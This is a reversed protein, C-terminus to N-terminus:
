ALKKDKLLTKLFENRKGGILSIWEEYYQPCKEKMEKDTNLFYSPSSTRALVFQRWDPYDEKNFVREDCIFCIATLADNLDPENFNSIDITNHELISAYIDQMTGPTVLSNNTTGGNLIIWTKHNEIFDKFLPKDHYTNAYELAAHGAQIGKYIESINQPVFIYMRLELKSEM